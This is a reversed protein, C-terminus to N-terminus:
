RALDFTSGPTALDVRGDFVSEAEARAVDPDHWPPVHTIVLRGVGADRALEGAQRGTLHLDPPNDDGDVFSAECLLVDTGRALEDIARCPGTDGSYVLATGDVEFRIGYAEIPHAVREARVRFPGVTAAVSLDRFDFSAEMGRPTRMGYASALREAADSPGYVPLRGQFAYPGYRHAVYLATLDICHDAHLHGLVIADIDTLELHRQLAGLSGHGLDIVVRYDDHELLYCSAASEPGPISGSSGVVTLKM